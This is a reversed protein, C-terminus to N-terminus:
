KKDEARLWAIAVAFGIFFGIWRTKDLSALQAGSASYGLVATILTGVVLLLSLGWGLKTTRPIALGFLVLAVYSCTFKVASEVTQFSIAAASPLVRHEAADLMALIHHDEVVDLLATLVMAGLALNVFPRGLERLYAALAAFFATYLILFAVDLAFVTRLAQAHEVLSLAYAEPIAFHEHPEQAAGTVLSVVVMVLLVASTCGALYMALKCSRQLSAPASPTRLADIEQSM